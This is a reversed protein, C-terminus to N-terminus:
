SVGADRNRKGGKEHLRVWWRMGAPNYDEVQVGVVARIRAFAFTMVYILARDRLGVLCPMEKTTGNSLKIKRTLPISDLLGRAQKATLV